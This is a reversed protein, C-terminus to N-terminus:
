VPYPRSIGLRSLAARYNLREPSYEAWYLVDRFDAGAAAAFHEIRAPSATGDTGLVLVAVQCRDGDVRALAALVRVRDGEPFSRAVAGVLDDALPTAQDDAM